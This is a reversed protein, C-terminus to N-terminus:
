FSQFITMVKEIDGFGDLLFDPQYAALAARDYHGTTVCMVKLGNHRACRIDHPTDGIVLVNEAAVSSGLMVALRELAIKPLENRDVHESGFAGFVFQAPDLGVGQLKYPVIERVNGTVLGLVFRHDNRLRDLLTSVGPFIEMRTRRSHEAIIRAYADFALSRKAEIQSSALGAQGLLDTLIQWDTKGAMDYHDIPVTIGYVEQLVQKFCNPGEGKPDLLTGDIDFLLVRQM